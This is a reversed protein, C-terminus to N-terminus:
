ELHPPDIANAIRMAASDYIAPAAVLVLALLAAIVAVIKLTELHDRSGGDAAPLPETVDFVFTPRQENVHDLMGTPQQTVDVPEVQPCPFVGLPEDRLSQPPQEHDVLLRAATRRPLNGMKRRAKMVYDDVTTNSIELVRAIEGSTHGTAVLRLCERERNSLSEYTDSDM